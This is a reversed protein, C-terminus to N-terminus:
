FFGEHEPLIPEIMAILFNTHDHSYRKNAEHFCSVTYSQKIFLHLYENRYFKGMEGDRQLAETITSRSKGLMTGLQKHTTQVMVENSRNDKRYAIQRLERVIESFLPGLRPRWYYRFYQSSAEKHNLCWLVQAKGDWIPQADDAQDTTTDLLGGGEYTFQLSISDPLGATILSKKVLESLRGELWAKATESQAKIIILTDGNKYLESNVLIAEYTSKTMQQRLTPLIKDSWDPWLQYM